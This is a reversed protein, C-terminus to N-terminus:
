LRVSRLHLTGEHDDRDETRHARHDSGIVTPLASLHEIDGLAYDTLMARTEDVNVSDEELVSDSFKTLNKPLDTREV